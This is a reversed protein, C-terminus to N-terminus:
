RGRAFDFKFYSHLTATNVGDQNKLRIRGWTDKEQAPSPRWPAPDQNTNALGSNDLTYWDWFDGHANGAQVQVEVPGVDRSLTTFYECSNVPFYEDVTQAAGIGIEETGILITRASPYEGVLLPRGIIELDGATGNQCYFEISISPWPIYVRGSGAFQPAILSDGYIAAAHKYFADRGTVIGSLISDSGSHEAVYSLEWGLINPHTDGFSVSDTKGAAFEVSYRRLDPRPFPM